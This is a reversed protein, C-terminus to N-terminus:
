LQKYTATFGTIFYGESIGRRLCYSRIAQSSEQYDNIIDRWRQETRPKRDILM